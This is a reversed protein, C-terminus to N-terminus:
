ACGKVFPGILVELIQPPWLLSGLSNFGLRVTWPLLTVYECTRNKLIENKVDYPVLKRNLALTPYM